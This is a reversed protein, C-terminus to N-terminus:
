CMAAWFTTRRLCMFTDVFSLFAQSALGTRLWLGSSNYHLTTILYLGHEELASVGGTVWQSKSFWVKGLRLWM